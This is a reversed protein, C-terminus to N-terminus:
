WPRCGSNAFMYLSFIAVCKLLEVHIVFLVLNYARVTNQGCDSCLTLGSLSILNLFTPSELGM